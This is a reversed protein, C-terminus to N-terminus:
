EIDTVTGMFVPLNTSTDIIAYVFPRDLTVTYDYMPCSKLKMEVKTVAGAKTGREDVSIFTKHLVEGIYINGYPSSALKSFDATGSNFATPMGLAKLADNMTVTYAYNFKPTKAEVSVKEANKVATVFGEGTLTDIYEDLTIDVNPLLAVFAYKGDKYYKIFGTAKGDDIYREEVSSMMEVTRKKGDYATFTGDTINNKEYITAWEADFVLANILYMVTDADIRDVISDIMGDTKDKVWNNIDKVTQADFPSKYASANYYDANIQLFDVEVALTDEDDRFWISNAIGLKYKKDSPLSNVYYYLYENLNELSIGGGLLTEMEAKTQTDAGNATMALALMVSLPSILSNKGETITKKFLEMSFDAYSATFAEDPQRGTPTKAEVGDMLDAAQVEISCGALNFAMAIILMLGLAASLMRKKNLM